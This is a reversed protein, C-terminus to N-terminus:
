NETVVTCDSLQIHRRTKSWLKRRMANAGKNNRKLHVIVFMNYALIQEVEYRNIFSDPMLTSTVNFPKSVNFSMDRSSIPRIIDYDNSGVAYIENCETVFFTICEQTCFVKKIAHKLPVLTPTTVAKLGGMKSLQCHHNKGCMYVRGHQSLFCSYSSGCTIKVIKDNSQLPIDIKTFNFVNGFEDQANKASSLGFQGVNNRGCGYCDGHRTLLLTFDEGCTIQTVHDDNREFQVKVKQFFVHFDKNGSGTGCQGAQNLGITYVNAKSTLVVAHDHGLAVDIPRENEDLDELLVHCPIFSDSKEIGKGLQGWANVGQSYLSGNRTMFYNFTGTFISGSTWCKRVIQDEQKSSSNIFPIRELQDIPIVNKNDCKKWEDWDMETALHGHVKGGHVGHLLSNNKATWLTGDKLVFLTCDRNLKVDIIDIFSQASFETEEEIKAGPKLGVMSIFAKINNQTLPNDKRIFWNVESAHSFYETASNAIIKLERRSKTEAFDLHIYKCKDGFTCGCKTIATQNKIIEPNRHPNSNNHHNLYDSKYHKCIASHSYSCRSGFKCQNSHKKRSGTTGHQQAKNNNGYYYQCPAKEYFSRYMPLSSIVFVKHEENLFNDDDDCHNYIFDANKSSSTM